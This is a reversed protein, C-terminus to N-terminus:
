WYSETRPKNTNLATLTLLIATYPDHKPIYTSNDSVKGKRITKGQAHASAQIMLPLPRLNTRRLNAFTSGTWKPSQSALNNIAREQHRGLARTRVVQRKFGLEYHRAPTTHKTPGPVSMATAQQRGPKARGVGAGGEGLM